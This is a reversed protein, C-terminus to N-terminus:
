EAYRTKLVELHHRAHGAIVYALARVTISQDSATGRRRWAATPLNRLLTITARRVDGWEAAMDALSRDEARLEPVYAQDDFGPLPTSDGRGIRLARYAFVRETDSLHGVVEKLSWKRSAYRYDGRAEPIRNLWTQVEDLQNTLVVEIDEDKAVRDVYGAFSVPYEDVGPPPIRVM